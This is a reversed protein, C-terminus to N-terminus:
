YLNEIVQDEEVFPVDEKSRVEGRTESAQSDQLRTHCTFVSSSFFANCVEAKEMDITVM